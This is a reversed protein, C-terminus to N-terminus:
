RNDEARCYSSGIAVSVATEPDSSGMVPQTLVTVLAPITVEAVHGSAAATVQSATLGAWSAIYDGLTKTDSVPTSLSVSALPDTTTAPTIVGASVYQGSGPVLVVGGVVVGPTWKWYEVEARYSVNTTPTHNVTAVTCRAASRAIVRVLGDPASTTPLIRIVDTHTGGCADATLPNGLSTEDTSNIYGSGTLHSTPATISFACNYLSSVTNTLVDGVPPTADLSVLPDVLGTLTPTQTRFQFGDRTVNDPMQTQVPNLLGPLGSVGARPLGNDAALVFPPILTAGWCSGSCGSLLGGAAVNVNVLNTYPASVALAAGDARGSVSSASGVASLNARATSTTSLSGSLDLQGGTLNVAEGDSLSSSVDVATGRADLKLRLDSPTRLAIQTYTTFPKWKGHDSYLMTATVGVQSSPPRDSGTTQSNYGNAPTVPLPPVASSVFTTDVVIAFGAPVEGTAATLVKRYMPGSAQEYSCRSGGAPVYGTWASSPANFNPTTGCSPATTPATLNRYYTDLLDRHDGASPAVRFPLTRMTDLQGQLLGKGQSTMKARSSARISAAMQPGAAAMAIALLTIAVVIEFLSFGDDARFAVLRCRRLSKRL